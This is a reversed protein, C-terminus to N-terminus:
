ANIGEPCCKVCMGRLGEAREGPWHGRRLCRWNEAPWGLMFPRRGRWEFGYAKGALWRTVRTPRWRRGHGRPGCEAHQDRWYEASCWPCGWRGNDPAEAWTPPCGQGCDVRRCIPRVAVGETTVKRTHLRFEGLEDGLGTIFDYLPVEIKDGSGALPHWTLVFEDLKIGDADANDM